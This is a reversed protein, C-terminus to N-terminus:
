TTTKFLKNFAKNIAQQQETKRLKEINSKRRKEVEFVLDEFKMKGEFSVYFGRTFRAYIKLGWSNQLERKIKELQYRNCYKSFALPLPEENKAKTYGAMRALLYENTMKAYPKTQLISRIAAFALFCVIEFETKHNIYFDFIIDENISVMPPRPPTNVFLQKGSDYVRKWNGWTLGLNQGSKKMKHEESGTEKCAQVYGCYDMINSTSSRIDSIGNRLLWVPFTLYIQGQAM